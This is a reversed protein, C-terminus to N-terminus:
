SPDTNRSLVFPANDRYPDGVVPWSQWFGSDVFRESRSTPKVFSDSAVAKAQAYRLFQDLQVSSPNDRAQAIRAQHDNHFKRNSRRTDRSQFVRNSSGQLGASCKLNESGYGERRLWDSTMWTAYFTEIDFSM